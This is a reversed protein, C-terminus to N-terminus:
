IMLIFFHFLLKLIIIRIADLNERQALPEDGVMVYLPQLNQKLHSELQNQALRM